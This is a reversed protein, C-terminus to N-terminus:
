LQVELVPLTHLFAVLVLAVPPNLIMTNYEEILEEISNNNYLSWRISYTLTNIQWYCTSDPSSIM